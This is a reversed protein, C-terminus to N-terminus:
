FDASEWGFDSFDCFTKDSIMSIGGSLVVAV